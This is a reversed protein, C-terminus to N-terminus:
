EEGGEYFNFIFSGFPTLRYATVCGSYCELAGSAAERFRIVTKTLQQGGGNVVLVERGSAGPYRDGSYGSSHDHGLILMDIGGAEQLLRLGQSETNSGFALPDDASGLGGHYSVIIFECGEARMAALYPAAEEAMSWSGNGPHTFRLGPYREPLDWRTVDCNELGLIGIKHAHGNVTVTRAIWPTFANSGAEHTGDTGDWVANAALVAVGNAELYRYVGSMMSWSFNFEHNGLVFADYGIEKLCLAMAPPDSSRGDALALLQTESAQTRQFLDGNDILLVQDRGYEERAQAVATSVSLMSNPEPANTLLDTHWCKGHMDTTSLVAVDMYSGADEGLASFSATLLAALLALLMFLSRRKM